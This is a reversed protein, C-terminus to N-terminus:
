SLLFSILQVCRLLRRVERFHKGCTAIEHVIDEICTVGLRGLRSRVTDNDTIPIRQGRIKLFGRKYVLERVTKVNPYGYTVFPEVRKLM